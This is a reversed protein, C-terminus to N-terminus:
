LSGGLLGYIFVMAIAMPALFKLVFMLLGTIAIKYQGGSTIEDSFAKRGLYWGVFLVIFIAGLPLMINATLYEFWDFFTKGAITAGKLPGFSLTAFVGVVSIATAALITSKARTMKLEECFYAVVVELVSVTSTLAAIALLLFFFISFIHGGPMQAFINPLVVFVLGPGSAPDIGYAFVAPFIMVGALIAIATDSLSVQFAIGPLHNDKRVYSGYTILTGMGISLSFAAQGLAMLVSNWTIKSFDPSFLFKLGEGSGPLTLSRISVALILVVLLPM